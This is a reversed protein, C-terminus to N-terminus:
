PSPRWHITHGAGSRGSVVVSDQAGRSLAGFIQGTVQSVDLIEGSKSGTKVLETGFKLLAPPNEDLWQAAELAQKAASTPMDPGGAVAALYTNNVRGVNAIAVQNADGKLLTVARVASQLGETQQPAMGKTALAFETLLNTGLVSLNYYSEEEAALQAPTSRKAAM